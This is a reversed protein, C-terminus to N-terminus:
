VALAPRGRREVTATARGVRETTLGVRPGLRSVLAHGPGRCAFFLLATGVLAVLEVGLVAVWLPIAGAAAREGVLLIVLDTPIPIPVGAEMPVLLALAAPVGLSGTAAAGISTRM